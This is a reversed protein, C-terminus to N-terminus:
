QSVAEQNLARRGRRKADPGGFHDEIYKIPEDGLMTVKVKFMSGSSSGSGERSFSVPPSHSPFLSPPPTRIYDEEVMVSEVLEESPSKPPSKHGYYSDVFRLNTPVSEAFDVLADVDDDHTTQLFVDESLSQLMNIPMVETCYKVENTEVKPPSLGNLIAILTQTSDACSEILLLKNTVNVDVADGNVSLKAVAKTLGLVSVYGMSAFGAILGSQPPKKGHSPRNDPEVLHEVDDVLMVSAKDIEMVASLSAGNPLAAQLQADSLVLLARSDLNLPNLAIISDKIVLDFGLANIEAKETQQPLGVISQVMDQAIDEGTTGAPKQMLALLTEVSYELRINWLKVKIVPELEDGIMRVMIMPRDVDPRAFMERDLAQGLLEEHDQRGVSIHGVGLAFLAPATVHTMGVSDMEAVIRGVGGGVEVFAQVEHVDVLTLLGPREDGAVFDTVSLLQLVEDGLEKLRDFVKLDHVETRVAAVSIKLVSGQERQRLLTDIMIDPDDYRDKSPVLLELLRTLDEQSPRSAFEMRCKDVGIKAAVLEKKPGSIEIKDIEVALGTKTSFDVKIPTSELNVAATQGVVDFLLGGIKADIKTDNLLASGSGMTINDDPAMGKITATSATTSALVNGVGGFASFMAELRQLNGRIRLPLTRINIRAKRTSQSFIVVIDDEVASHGLLGGGPTSTSSRKRHHASHSMKAASKSSAGAPQARRAPLFTIIGEEEDGLAFKRVNLQSTSADDALGRHLLKVDNLLCHLQVTEDAEDEEDNDLYKGGLHNIMRVDIEEAWFQLTKKREQNGGPSKKKKFKRSQDLDRQEAVANQVIELVYNLMKETEIDVKGNIHSAIIEIDAPKGPADYGLLTETSNDIPRADLADLIKVRPGSSTSKAPSAAIDPKISYRSAYMSFTGPMCNESSVPPPPSTVQEPEVPVVGDALSPYYITINDLHLCEKRIKRPLEPKPSPSPTPRKRLEPSKPPPPTPTRSDDGLIVRDLRRDMEEADVINEDEGGGLASQYALDESADGRLSSASVFMKAQERSFIASRGLLMSAEQDMEDGSSDPDSLNSMDSSSRVPGLVTGPANPSRPAESFMSERASAFSAASSSMTSHSPSVTKPPSHGFIAGGGDADDESDEEELVQDDYEFHSRRMFDPKTSGRMSPPAFALEEEEDSNDYDVYHSSRSQSLTPQFLQEPSPPAISSTSEQIEPSPSSPTRPPSTSAPSEGRSDVFHEQITSTSDYMEAAPEHQPESHASSQTESADESRATFMSEDLDARDDIGFMRAEAEIFGRINELTIRRKGQKKPHQKTDEPSSGPVKRSIGEIDLEDMKLELTVREHGREESLTTHLVVTTNNVRIVLNDMIGNILQALFGPLGPMFGVGVAEEEEEEADVSSTSQSLISAALPDEAYISMLQQKEADSQTELFSQALEEATLPFDNVDDPSAPRPTGSGRPTSLPSPEEPSPAILELEVKTDDLQIEVMGGAIFGRPITITLTGTVASTIDLRKPFKLIDKLRQWILTLTIEYHNSNPVSFFCVETKLRIDRLAFVSNAGLSGSINSLDDLTKHDLFDVKLLLYRALRKEWQDPIGGFKLMAPFM